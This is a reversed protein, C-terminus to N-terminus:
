YGEKLADFGALRYDVHRLVSFPLALIARDCHVELTEGATAFTLLLSTDHTREIAVLQHDLHISEQPLSRALAQPLQANGGVIKSSAQMPRATVSGKAPDRSGFLYLLNLASQEYTNLGYFGTCSANLLRGVPTDHGGQVYQEIWEYVSLQDLRLGEATFHTHTTLPGVDQLQRQVLPVLDRFGESLEEERYYRRSFYVTTQAQETRGASLDITRLSFRKILQYITTHEADIFEGCWDSVMGDGWTMTDSHMRGGVHNSAEYLTCSLGADQLTLAANLGAIGAGVIAIQTM